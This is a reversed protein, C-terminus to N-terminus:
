QLTRLRPSLKSIETVQVTASVGGKRPAGSAPFSMADGMAGTSGNQPATGTVAAMALRGIALESNLPRDKEGADTLPGFIGLYGNHYDGAPRAKWEETGDPSVGLESMSAFHLIQIWGANPLKPFARPGDPADFSEPSESPQLHGPLHGRTVPWICGITAMMALRGHKLRIRLLRFAVKDAGSCLGAPDWLGM